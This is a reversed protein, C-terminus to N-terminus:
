EMENYFPTIRYLNQRYANSEGDDEFLEFRRSAGPFIIVELEDPNSIRDVSAGAALPVVAGPAPLYPFKM